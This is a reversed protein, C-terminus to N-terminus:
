RRTSETWWGGGRRPSVCRAPRSYNRSHPLAHDRDMGRYRVSESGLRVRSNDSDCSLWVCEREGHEIPDPSPRWRARSRLNLCSTLDLQGSSQTARTLGGLVMAIPGLVVAAGVRGGRRRHRSRRRRHGPVARRPAPQGTGARPRRHGAEGTPHRRRRRRVRTRRNARTSRLGGIVTAILGILATLTPGLRGSGMITIAALLPQLATAENIQM